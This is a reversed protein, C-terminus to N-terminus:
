RTIETTNNRSARLRDCWSQPSEAEVESESEIEEVESDLNRYEDMEAEFARESELREAIELSEAESLVSYRSFREEELYYTVRGAALEKGIDYAADKAARIDEPLSSDPTGDVIGLAERVGEFFPILFVSEAGDESYGRLSDIIGKAYLKLQNDVGWYGETAETKAVGAQVIEDINPAVREPERLEVMIEDINVSM